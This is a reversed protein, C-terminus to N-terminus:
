EIPKSHAIFGGRVANLAEDLTDCYGRNGHAIWWESWQWKGAMMHHEELTVRGVDVRDCM